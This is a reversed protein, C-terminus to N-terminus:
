APRGCRGREASSHHQVPSAIWASCSCIGRRQPHGFVFKPRFPQGSNGGQGCGQSAMKQVPRLKWVVLVDSARLGALCTKLGARDDRGGSQKDQHLHREDVGAALLADLQLDVVQRDDSSSVRMYGILM